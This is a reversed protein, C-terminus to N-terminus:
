VNGPCSVLYSSSSWGNRGTPCDIPGSYCCIKLADKHGWGTLKEAIPNMFTIRSEPDIVIVASGISALIARYGLVHERLAHSISKELPLFDQNHSAEKDM